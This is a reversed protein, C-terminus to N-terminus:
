CLLRHSDKSAMKAGDKVERTMVSPRSSGISTPRSAYLTNRLWRKRVPCHAASMAEQSCTFREDKGRRWILLKAFNGDTGSM